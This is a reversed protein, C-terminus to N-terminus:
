PRATVGGGVDGDALSAEALWGGVAAGVLVPKSGPPPIDPAGLVVGLPDAFGVGIGVGAGVAVARVLGTGVGPAVGCSVGLGAVEGSGVGFGVGFGIAVGTGVGFAVGLGVGVGGVGVGGTPLLTVAEITLKANVGAFRATVTPDVTVHVL